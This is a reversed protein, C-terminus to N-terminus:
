IIRERHRSRRRVSCLLDYPITDLATSVEEVPLGEGWLTVEDGVSPNEVGRLDLIMMDMSSSVIKAKTNRVLVPPGAELRRPYGDAYGYAAVGIMMDEPCVYDGGYGVPQGSKVHRVSILNSLVRMVPKLGLSEGAVGPFPSVGYLILGPRVWDFYSTRWKLVGGSNALSKENSYKLTVDGFKKIQEKVGLDNPMNANALHSMLIINNSLPSLKRYAHDLSATDFGLRTMGTDVKLWINSLNTRSETLIDIQDHSHIVPELRFERIIELEKKEFFGELLVIRHSINLERLAIAEETSVVGFADADDFSKAILDLGHGYADAKVVALIKSCGILSRVTSLNHTAASVDIEVRAPRSM